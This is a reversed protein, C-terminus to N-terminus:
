LSFQLSSLSHSCQGGPNRPCPCHQGPWRATGYCGLGFYQGIVLLVGVGGTVELNWEQVALGRCAGGQIPLPLVIGCPFGGGSCHLFQLFTYCIYGCGEMM